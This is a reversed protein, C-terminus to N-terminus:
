SKPSPLPVTHPDGPSCSWVPPLEPKLCFLIRHFGNMYRDQKHWVWATGLIAPNPNSLPWRCSATQDPNTHNPNTGAAPAKLAKFGRQATVGTSTNEELSHKAEGHSNDWTQLAGLEASLAPTYLFSYFLAAKFDPLLLPFMRGKQSNLPCNRQLANQLPM